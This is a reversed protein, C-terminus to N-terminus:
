IKFIANERFIHNNVTEFFKVESLLHSNPLLCQAKDYSMQCKDLDKFFSVLKNSFDETQNSIHGRSKM